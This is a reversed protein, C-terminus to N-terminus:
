VQAPVLKLAKEEATNLAVADDFLFWSEAVKEDVIRHIHTTLSDFDTGAITAKTRCVVVGIEDDAFIKQVELKSTGESLRVTEALLALIKEPGKYDGALSTTGKMHWVTDPTWSATVAPIDNREYADYADRLLKENKHM